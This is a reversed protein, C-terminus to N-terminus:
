AHESADARVGSPPRERKTQLNKSRAAGGEANVERWRWRLLEEAREESTM